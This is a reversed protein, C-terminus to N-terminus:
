ITKKRQNKKNSKKNAKRKSKRKSKKRQKTKKLKGGILSPGISLQRVLKTPTGNLVNCSSDFLEIKINLMYMLFVIESLTIITDPGPNAIHEIYSNIRQTNLDPPRTEVLKTLINGLNNKIYNGDIQMGPLGYANVVYINRHMETNDKFTYRKNLDSHPALKYSAWYHRQGTINSVSLENEADINEQIRSRRDMQEPTFPFGSMDDLEAKVGKMKNSTSTRLFYRANDFTQELLAKRTFARLITYQMSFGSESLYSCTGYPTEIAYKVSQIYDDEGIDSNFRDDIFEGHANILLIMKVPYSKLHEAFQKLDPLGQLWGIISERDINSRPINKSFEENLNFKDITTDNETAFNIYNWIFNTFNWGSDWNLYYKYIEDCTENPLSETELIASM